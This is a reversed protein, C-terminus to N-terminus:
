SLTLNLTYCYPFYDCVIQYHAGLYEAKSPWPGEIINHPLTASYDADRQYENWDEQVPPADRSPDTASWIESTMPVEPFNRWEETYNGALYDKNIHDRLAEFGRGSHVYVM